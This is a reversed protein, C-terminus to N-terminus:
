LVTFDQMQQQLLAVIVQFGLFIHLSMGFFFFVCLLAPEGCIASRNATLAVNANRAFSAVAVIGAVHRSSCISLRQLTQM